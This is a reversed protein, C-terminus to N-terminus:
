PLFTIYMFFYGLISIGLLCFTMIIDCKIVDWYIRRYTNNGRNILQIVDSEIQFNTNENDM